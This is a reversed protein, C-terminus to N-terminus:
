KPPIYGPSEACCERMLEIVTRAGPLLTSNQRYAIGVAEDPFPFNTRLAELGLAKEGNSLLTSPVVTVMDTQRILADFFIATSVNIAPVPPPVGADMFTQNIVLRHAQPFQPMMWPYGALEQVSINERGTLPHGERAVLVPRTLLLPDFTIGVQSSDLPKLLLAVDLEGELLAPALETSFAVRLILRLGPYRSLVLRGVNAMTGCMTPIVGVVVTGRTVGRMADIEFVARRMEADIMKAYRFLADGFPTPVVGRPERDLLMVGLEAELSRIAKSLAPQSVSVAAAASHMTKHEVCAIFYRLLRLDV